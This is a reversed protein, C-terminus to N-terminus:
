YFYPVYVVFVQSEQQCMVNLICSNRTSSARVCEKANRERMSSLLAQIKSGRTVIKAMNRHVNHLAMNCIMCINASITSRYIQECKKRIRTFHVAYFYISRNRSQM